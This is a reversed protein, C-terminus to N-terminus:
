CGCAGSVRQQSQTTPTSVSLAGDIWIAECSETEYCTRAITGDFVVRYQGGAFEAHVPSGASMGWEAQLSGAVPRLSVIRDEVRIVADPAPEQLEQFLISESSEMPGGRSLSCGCGAYEAGLRQLQVEEAASPGACALMAVAVLALRTSTM